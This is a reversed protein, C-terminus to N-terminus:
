LDQKIQYHDHNPPKLSLILIIYIYRFGYPLQYVLNTSNIIEWWGAGITTSLCGAFCGCGACGRLVQVVGLVLFVDVVLVIGVVLLALTVAIVVM